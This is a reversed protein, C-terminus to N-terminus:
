TVLNETMELQLRITAAGGSPEILMQGIALDLVADSRYLGFTAGNDRIYDTVWRDPVVPNWDGVIHDVM